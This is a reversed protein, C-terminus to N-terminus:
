QLQSYWKCDVIEYILSEILLIRRTLYYASVQELIYYYTVSYFDQQLSFRIMETMARENSSWLWGCM